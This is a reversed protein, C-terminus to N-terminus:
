VRVARIVVEPNGVGRRAVDVLCAHTIPEKVMGYIALEAREEVPRENCIGIRTAFPFPCM